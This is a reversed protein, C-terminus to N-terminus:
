GGDALARTLWGPTPLGPTGVLLWGFAGLGSPDLLLTARSRGSWARVAEAGRRADMLEWQRRREDQTWDGFGLATLARRQNVLPFAALGAAEARRALSPFEVGATIDNGGPDELVDAIPVHERYGHPPGSARDTAGYDVLLAYGHRLEAAMDDVFALAGVPVVGEEGVALGEAAAPDAPALVEVLEGRRGMGVRIERVGEETRRVRRFPLNDLLEHALVVHPDCEPPIESEAAVLGEVEALRELAEPSREVAIYSPALDALAELLQRALTGDGAGVEVIRMPSPAGLDDHLDRLARALLRGFVPHVHPSTVFDGAVGVPISRYYGGPGYLALEMYEAFSIPGHDAIAESVARRAASGM